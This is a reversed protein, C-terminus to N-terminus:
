RTTGHLPTRKECRIPQVDAPSLSFEPPPPPMKGPPLRPRTGPTTGKGGVGSSIQGELMEEALRHLALLHDAPHPGPSDSRFLHGPTAPTQDGSPGGALVAQPALRHHRPTWAVLALKRAGARPFTISMPGTFRLAPPPAPCAVGVGSLPVGAVAPGPRRKKTDGPDDDRGYCRGSPIVQQNDRDVMAAVDARSHLGELRRQHSMWPHRLPSGPAITSDERGRM